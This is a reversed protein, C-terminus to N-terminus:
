SRGRRGDGKRGDEGGDVTDIFLKRVNKRRLMRSDLHIGEHITHTCARCGCFTRVIEVSDEDAHTLIGGFYRGDRQVTLKGDM